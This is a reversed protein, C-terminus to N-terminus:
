DGIFGSKSHPAYNIPASCHWCCTNILRFKTFWNRDRLQVTANPHYDWFSSVVVCERHMHHVTKLNAVQRTVVAAYADPRHALEVILELKNTIIM